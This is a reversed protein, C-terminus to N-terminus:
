VRERYDRLVTDEVSDSSNKIQNQAEKSKKQIQFENGVLPVLLLASIIIKGWLPTENMVNMTIFGAIYVVGYIYRFSKM